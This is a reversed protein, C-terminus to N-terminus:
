KRTLQKKTLSKVDSTFECRPDDTSVVTNDIPEQGGPCTAVRFDAFCFQGKWTGENLRAEPGLGAYVDFNLANEACYAGNTSGKVATTSGGTRDTAQCYDNTWAASTAPNPITNDTCVKNIIKFSKTDFDAKSEFGCYQNKWENENIRAEPGADLYAGSAAAGTTDGLCYVNFMATGAAVGVLQTWGSKASDAPVQCYENEWSTSAKSNPKGGDSCIGKQVTITSDDFAQRNTYGCYESKWTGENIPTGSCRESTATAVGGKTLVGCYENNWGGQNPGTLGDACLGTQTTLNADDAAEQSSYGCYQNRWTKENFRNASTAARFATSANKICYANSGGVRTTYGSARNEFKVQCYQNQWSTVDYGNPGTSGDGCTGTLRALNNALFDAESVVGCYQDLWDGATLYKSKGNEKIENLSLRAIGEPTSVRCFEDSYISFQSSKNMMRCYGKGLAISDPGIGDSCANNRKVKNISLSGPTNANTSDAYGCYEGAWADKNIVFATDRGCVAPLGKERRDEPKGDVMRRSYKCYEGKWTAGGSVATLQWGTTDGDGNVIAEAENPKNGDTVAVDSKNICLDIPTPKGADFAAKNVFGCYQLTGNILVQDDGSGCNSYVGIASTPISQIGASASCYKKSPDFVYLTAITSSYECMHVTTAGCVLNVEKTNRVSTVKECGELWRKPTSPTDNTCVIEYNGNVAEDNIACSAGVPGPQGNYLVGDPGKDGEPGTALTGIVESGCTIVGATSVACKNSGNRGDSGDEGSCSITFITAAMAMSIVAALLSVRHFKNQLVRNLRMKVGKKERRSKLRNEAMESGL